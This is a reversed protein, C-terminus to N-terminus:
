SSTSQAKHGIEFVQGNWAAEYETEETPEEQKDKAVFLHGVYTTLGLEEGPRLLGVRTGQWFLMMDHPQNNMFKVGIAENVTSMALNKKQFSTGELMDIAAVDETSLKVDSRINDFIRNKRLSRALGM